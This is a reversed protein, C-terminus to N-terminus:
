HRTDGGHLRDDIYKNSTDINTVKRDIRTYNTILKAFLSFYTSFISDKVNSFTTSLMWDAWVISSRLYRSGQSLIDTCKLWIRIRIINM